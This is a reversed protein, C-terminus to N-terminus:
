VPQWNNFKFGPVLQDPKNNARLMMSTRTPTKLNVVSHEPRIEIDSEVLGTARLLTLDGPYTEYAIDTENHRVVLDCVGDLSMIAILGIFRANDRHRSLGVEKNDYKHLSLEDAEWGKLSPFYEELGVIFNEIKTYLNRINPLNDLHTSDANKLKLAFTFHNQTITLDRNNKYVDHADIWDVWESTEIENNIDYLQEKDIFSRIIEVGSLEPNNLEEYKM